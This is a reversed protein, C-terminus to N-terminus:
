NEVQRNFKQNESRVIFALVNSIQFNLRADLYNRILALNINGFKIKKEREEISLKVICQFSLLSHVSQLFLVTDRTPFVTLSSSATPWNILVLM